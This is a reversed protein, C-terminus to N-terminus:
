VDKSATERAAGNAAIVKANHPSTATAAHLKGYYVECGKAHWGKAQSPTALPQHVWQGRPLDCLRCRGKRSGGNEYVHPQLENM